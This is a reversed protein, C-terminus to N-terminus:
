EYVEEVVQLTTITKHVVYIQWPVFFNHVHILKYMRSDTEMQRGVLDPDSFSLVNRLDFLKMFCTPEANKLTIAM